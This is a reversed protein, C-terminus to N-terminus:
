RQNSITGNRFSFNIKGVVVNKNLPMTFTTNGRQISVTTNLRVVRKESATATSSMIQSGRYTYGSRLSFSGPTYSLNKNTTLVNNNRPTKKKNGDGLTAFSSVASIAILAVVAIKRGAIKVISNRRTQNM